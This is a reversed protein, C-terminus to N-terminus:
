FQQTTDFVNNKIALDIKNTLETPKAVYYGQIADVYITELLRYQQLTEIGEAIVVCGLRHSVDIIMRLFQQTTLEKEFTQCLNPDLKIYNPRLTRYLKFSELGTGFHSVSTNAGARKIVTFLRESSTMNSELISEDIEFVLNKAIDTNRLLTRELWLLFSTSILANASLNIGFMLNPQTQSISYYKAIISDIIMQELKILLDHRQAAALVTETSLVEGKETTFRAFIETYTKISINLSRIPQYFLQIAHRSIISEVTKRWHMEGQLYNETDETQVAYGNIPGTQAKALALDARTIASEQTDKSSFLTYGTYCVSELINAKQYHEIQLKLEQTISNINDITANQMLIAIDSGSIRFANAGPFRKIANKVLEAVNKIYTDGAQFGRESNIQQIESARVIGLINTFPSKIELIEEFTKRFISRNYLGTMTDIASSAELREIKRIAENLNNNMNSEFDFLAKSIDADPVDEFKKSLVAEKLKKLYKFLEIKQLTLTSFVCILISFISIAILKLFNYFTNSSPLTFEVKISDTPKIDGSLPFLLTTVSNNVNDYNNIYNGNETIILRNLELNSILNSSINNNYSSWDQTKIIKKATEVNIECESRTIYYIIGIDILCLITALLFAKKKTSNFQTM